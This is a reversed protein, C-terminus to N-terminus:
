ILGPPIRTVAPADGSTCSAYALKLDLLNGYHSGTIGTPVTIVAKGGLVGLASLQKVTITGALDVGLALGWASIGNGGSTSSGPGVTITLTLATDRNDIQGPLGSFLGGLGLSGLLQDLGISEKVQLLDGSAVIQLDSHGPVTTLHLDRVGAWTAGGDVSAEYTGNRLRAKVWGNVLQLDALSEVATPAAGGIPPCTVSASAVAVDGADINFARIAASTFTSQASYGSASGTVSGSPGNLTIGLLGPIAVKGLPGTPYSAPGTTTDATNGSSNLLGRIATNVLSNIGSTLADAIPQVLSAVTSGLLGSGAPLSPAITVATGYAAKATASGTTTAGAPTAVACAAASLGAVALATATRRSV